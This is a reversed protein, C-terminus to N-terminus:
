LKVERQSLLLNDNDLQLLQGLDKILVLRKHREDIFYCYPYQSMLHEAFKEPSSGAGRLLKASFELFVLPPLKSIGEFAHAEYGEIDIKILDVTLKHKRTFNDLTELKVSLAGSQSVSHTGISDKIDINVRGTKEGIAVPVINVNAHNLECNRRLFELNEPVPEFAYVTAGRAAAILSYVGINAGIDLVIMKSEILKEFVHLEYDEYDGNILGPVITTDKTPLLLKQGRFTILKEPERM